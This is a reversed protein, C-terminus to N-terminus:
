FSPPCNGGQGGAPVAITVGIHLLLWSDSDYRFDPYNPLIPITLFKLITGDSGDM